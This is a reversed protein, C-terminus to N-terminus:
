LVDNDLLCKCCNGRKAPRTWACSPRGTAQLQSDPYTFPSYLPMYILPTNVIGAGIRLYSYLLVCFSRAGVM